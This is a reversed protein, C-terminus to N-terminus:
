LDRVLTDSITIIPHSPCVVPLSTIGVKGAPNGIAGAQISNGSLARYFTTGVYNPQNDNDCLSIFNQVTKPMDDGFLGIVLRSSRSSSSSSSSSSSKAFEVDLYVKHTIGPMQMAPDIIFSM